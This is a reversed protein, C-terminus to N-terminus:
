LPYDEDVTKFELSLKWWSEEVSEIVLLLLNSSLCKHIYNVGQNATSLNDNYILNDSSTITNWEITVVEVILFRSLHVFTM